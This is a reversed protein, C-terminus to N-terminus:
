KLSLDEDYKDKNKEWWDKAEEYSAFEKDILTNIASTVKERFEANKDQLAEILIDVARHGGMNGLMAVSEEKTDGYPCSIGKELVKFQIQEDKDRAIDLAANRINESEDSVATVLLDGTQPDDIDSLIGVATQRVEEDSHLMAKAVVPLVEPSKCGRVLEIGALAVNSDEDAVATQVIGIACPDRDIEGDPLFQLVEIKRESSSAINYEKRLVVTSIGGERPTDPNKATQNADPLPLIPSKPLQSVKDASPINAGTKASHSKEAGPKDKKDKKSSCGIIICIVSLSVLLICVASVSFGYQKKAKVM